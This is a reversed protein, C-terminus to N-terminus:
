EFGLNTGINNGIDLYLLSTIKLQNLVSFYCISLKHIFCIWMGKNGVQLVFLEIFCMM